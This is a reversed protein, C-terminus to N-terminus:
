PHVGQLAARLERAADLARFSPRAFESGQVAVFRGDRVARVTRWEPRSAWAPRGSDGLVVIVDPDRAAITEISVEASPQRLDGFVNEAGALAVLESQFSGGGIVIPPQDWSLLLVRRRQGRPPAARASDLATEFAGAVSDARVSDGTLRGLRRADAIVDELRDMRLAV